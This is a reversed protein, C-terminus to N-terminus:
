RLWSFSKGKLLDFSVVRGAGVLNTNERDGSTARRSRTLGRRRPGQGGGALGHVARSRGDHTGSRALPGTRPASPTSNSAVHGASPASLTQKRGSSPAAHTGAQWDHRPARRSMASAWESPRIQSAARPTRRPTRVAAPGHSLIAVRQSVSGRAMRAPQCPIAQQRQQWM